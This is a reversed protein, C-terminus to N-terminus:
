GGHQTRSHRSSWTETCARLYYAVSHNCTLPRNGSSAPVVNGATQPLADLSSWGLPQPVPCAPGGSSLSPSEARHHARPECGASGIEFVTRDITLVPGGNRVSKRVGGNLAVEASNAGRVPSNEPTPLSYAIAAQRVNCSCFHFCARATVAAVRRLCAGSSLIRMTRSPKRRSTVTRSRHM